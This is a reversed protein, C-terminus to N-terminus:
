NIDSGIMTPPRGITTPEFGVELLLPGVDLVASPVSEVPASSGGGDLKPKRRRPRGGAHPTARGPAGRGIRRLM